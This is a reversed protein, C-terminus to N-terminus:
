VNLAALLTNLNAQYNSLRHHFQALGVDKSQRRVQKKIGDFKNAVKPGTKGVIEELLEQLNEVTARCGETNADVEKWLKKIETENDSSTGPVAENTKEKLQKISENVSILSKIEHSLAAIEAEVRGASKEVDKLYSGVRWCVDLLGVTGVIISLPDVM